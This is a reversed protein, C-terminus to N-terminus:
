LKNLCRCFTPLNLTLYNNWLPITNLLFSFKYANNSPSLPIYRWPHFGRTQRTSMNQLRRQWADRAPTRSISYMMQLRMDNRRSAPSEWGLHGIMESLLVARTILVTALTVQLGGRFWEFNTLTKLQIHAGAWPPM